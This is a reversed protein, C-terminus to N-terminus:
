GPRSRSCARVFRELVAVTPNTRRGTELHSVYSQSIGIADALERQNLGADRRLEALQAPTLAHLPAAHM